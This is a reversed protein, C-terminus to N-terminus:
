NIEQMADTNLRDFKERKTGFPLARGLIHFIDAKGVNLYFIKLRLSIFKRTSNKLSVQVTSLIKQGM